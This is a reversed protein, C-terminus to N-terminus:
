FQAATMNVRIHHDLTSWYFVLDQTGIRRALSIDFDRYTYIDLRDIINDLGLHWLPSIRYMFSTDVSESQDPMEYTTLLSLSWQGSPSGTFLSMSFDHRDVPSLLIFAANPLVALHPQALFPNHTYGYSFNASTTPSLRENAGLSASMTLGSRHTVENFDQEFNVSDTVTTNHGFAISPTFLRIGAGRTETTNTTIGSGPTHIFTQSDQATFLGIYNLGMKKNGFILHPDTTLSANVNRSDSSFGDTVPSRSDSASLNFSLHPFQHSLNTSAFLGNHQPMDIYFYGRTGPGFSQSQTWRAGWDGRTLGMVQFDGHSAGDPTGYSEDMDLALGNRGTYYTGNDQAAASSRLFLTGTSNPSASFYYPVNLFFGSSEYGVVKQGFVQDTTLPMVHYPMSVIKKSDVFISAHTFQIRDDPRVAVATAVVLVRSQSIDAFAYTSDPLAGADARSLPKTELNSGVIAMNGVTRQGPVDTVIATGTHNLLNYSLLAAELVERKDKRLVANRARVIQDQVDVQIADADITVAHYSFHSGRKPSAADVVRDDASYELYEKSSVHIWDEAGKDTNALDKDATFEVDCQGSAGGGSGLFTATIVATGALPSSTLTVRAVGSSVGVTDASLSGSTTKFSVLTGDPIAHSVDSLQATIVTTSQGDALIRSPNASLSVAAPGQGLAPGSLLFLGPLLIITLAIWRVIKIRQIASNFQM